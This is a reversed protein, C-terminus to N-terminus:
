PPNGSPNLMTRSKRQIVVPFLPTGPPLGAPTTYNQNFYFQLTTPAGYVTNTSPWIYPATAIQSPYLNVMSTNLTLTSGNGWNELLRPMNQFGGSYQTTGTGGPGTSYVVGTIMAGNVTTSTAPRSSALSNRSYGDQWNGSLITLADSIFSTPYTGTVNTSNLNAASPTNYNGWVYLPNPTAVTLGYPPFNASGGGTLRVATSSLINTAPWDGVYIINLPTSASFKNSNGTNSYICHSNSCWSNFNSVNIETLQMTQKQRYDYFRGTTSLWSDFNNAIWAANSVGSSNINTFWMPAIDDCSMGNAPPAQLKIIVTNYFGVDPGNSVLILMGAKNFYRQRKMAISDGATAPYIIQIVNTPANHSVGIPFYIPPQGTAYGPAPTGNYTVSGTYQLQSDGAWSPNTIVGTTTVTSNFTLPNASGVYINSNAHVPGQVILTGATTFELLSDYFIAFEFIPISILAIDQQAGGVLNTYLNNTQQAYESIRYVSQLANLGHHGEATVVANSYLYQPVISISNTAGTQPNMFTYNTWYANDAASPVLTSYYALNTDVFAEGNTLFDATMQALAKETAADAAAANVFFQSGRDADRASQATQSFANASLLLSLGLLVFNRCFAHGRTSMERVMNTKLNLIM